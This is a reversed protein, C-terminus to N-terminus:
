QTNELLKHLRVNSERGVKHIAKLLDIIEANQGMIEDNQTILKELEEIM